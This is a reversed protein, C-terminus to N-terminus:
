WDVSLGQKQMGTVKSHLETFWLYYHSIVNYQVQLAEHACM